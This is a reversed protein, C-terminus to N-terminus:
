VARGDVQVQNHPRSGPKDLMSGLLSRRRVRHVKCVLRFVVAQKHQLLSQIRMNRGRGDSQLARRPLYEWLACDPRRGVLGM